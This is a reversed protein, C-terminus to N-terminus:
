GHLWGRKGPSLTSGPGLRGELRRILPPLAIFALVLLLIKLAPAPMTATPASAVAQAVPVRAVAGPEAGLVGACAPGTEGAGALAGDAAAFEAVEGPLGAAGAPAEM